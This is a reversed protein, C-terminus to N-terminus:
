WLPRTRIPGPPPLGGMGKTIIVVAGTGQYAGLTLTAMAAPYKLWAGRKNRGSGAPSALLHATGGIPGYVVFVQLAVVPAQFPSALLAEVIALIAERQQEVLLGWAGVTAHSADAAFTADPM